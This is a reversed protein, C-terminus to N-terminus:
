NFGSAGFGTSFGSNYPAEGSGDSGPNAFINMLEIFEGSVVNKKDDINIGIPKYLRDNDNVECFINLLGFYNTKSILSGRLKNSPRKYQAAMTKLLLGHLLDSEAIGDRTFNVYGDGNSDRLWGAYVVDASLADITRIRKVPPLGPGISGNSDLAFLSFRDDLYEETIISNAYSGIYLISEISNDNKDEGPRSRLVTDIPDEGNTLFAVKVYDLSFDATTNFNSNIDVKAKQVWQKPNFTAHYDDPRIINPIDEPSTTNELEYYMLKDPYVDSTYYDDSRFTKREGDKLVDTEYAKFDAETTFDAHFAYAHFVTVSFDRPDNGSSNPPPPIIIETDVYQGYGNVYSVYEYRQDPAGVAVLWTGDTRYYATGFKIYMRLKIYPFSARFTASGFSFSITPIKFRVNLRLTNAVGLRLPVIDSKLNASGTEPISKDGGILRIAVNNNELREYLDAIAYGGNILEWYNRNIIFDYSNSSQNYVAKLRFDGNKLINPKKGLRYQVKMTGFGPIVELNQDAYCFMYDDDNDKPYEINIIPNFSGNTVYDGEADFERYDYEQAQEEVRIINWYGDWQILQAGFPTLISRLVFDLTPQQDTVYFADYDIYAQDFPDDSDTTDMGEAYLNCAVRIGLGYDLKGLIYAVISILKQTGIFNQGDDQTFLFKELTALADTASAQIFYPLAKYDEQYRRQINKGIWKFDGNKTVKFRYLDPDNTYLERFQGETTSELKVTVSTNLIPEFKNESTFGNLSIILPSEGSGCVEIVEGVYARQLIEFITVGETIDNYEMRFKVGYERNVAVNVIVNQGCNKSDRVYVRYSGPLLGSFVNSSQGAGYEFDDNLNYEIPNSSTANVTIQGDTAVDSSAKVVESSNIYLDCVVPDVIECSPHNPSQVQQAYPFFFGGFFTIRAGEHCLTQGYFVQTYGELGPIGVYPGSTIVVDNLKVILGSTYNGLVIDDTEVYVDIIDGAVYTGYPNNITFEKRLILLEAM